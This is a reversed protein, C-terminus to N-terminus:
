LTQVKCATQKELKLSLDAERNNIEEEILISQLLNAIKLEEQIVYYFM